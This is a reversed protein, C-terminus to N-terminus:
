GFESCRPPVIRFRFWCLDRLERFGRIGVRSGNDSVRFVSMEKKTLRAGIIKSSGELSPEAYRLWDLLARRNKGQALEASNVAISESM